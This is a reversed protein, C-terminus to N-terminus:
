DYRAEMMEEIEREHITMVSKIRADICYRLMEKTHSHECHNIKEGKLVYYADILRRLAEWPMHDSRDYVVACVTMGKDHRLIHKAM